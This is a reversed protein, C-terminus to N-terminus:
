VAEGTYEKQLIREGNYDIYEVIISEADPVQWKLIELIFTFALKTDDSELEEKAMELEEESVEVHLTLRYLLSNGEALIEMSAEEIGLDVDLDEQYSAVFEEM